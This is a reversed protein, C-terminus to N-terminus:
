CGSKYLATRACLHAHASVSSSKKRFGKLVGPIFDVANQEGLRSNPPFQTGETNRMLVMSRAFLNAYMNWDQPNAPFHVISKIDEILCGTFINFNESTKAESHTYMSSLRQALTVYRQALSTKAVYIYEDQCPYFFGEIRKAADRL